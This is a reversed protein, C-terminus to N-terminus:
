TEGGRGPWSWVRCARKGVRRRVYDVKTCGLRVLFSFVVVTEQVRPNPLVAVGSFRVLKAAEMAGETNLVAEVEFVAFKVVVIAPVSETVLKVEKAPLMGVVVQM